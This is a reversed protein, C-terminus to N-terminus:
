KIKFYYRLNYNGRLYDRDCIYELPRNIPDDFIYTTICTEIDYHSFEAEKVILKNSAEDYRLDYTTHDGAASRYFKILVYDDCMLFLTSDDKTPVDFFYFLHNGINVECERYEQKILHEKRTKGALLKNYEDWSFGLEKFKNVYEDDLYFYNSSKKNTNYINDSNEDIQIYYKNVLDWSGFYHFAMIRYYHRYGIFVKNLDNILFKEFIDYVESSNDNNNIANVLGNIIDKLIEEKEYDHIFLKLKNIVSLSFYRAILSSKESNYESYNLCILKIINEYDEGFICCYLLSKIDLDNFRKTNVFDEILDIYIEKGINFDKLLSKYKLKYFGDNDVYFIGDLYQILLRFDLENWTINKRKFLRELDKITIGSPSACILSTAYKSLEYNIKKCSLKILESCLGGITESCEKVLDIQYNIIAKIDGGLENIKEFDSREMLSLRRLMLEVYLSNISDKKKFIEKTVLEDLEKRSNILEKNIINTVDFYDLDMISNIYPYKYSYNNFDSITFLVSVNEPMDEIMFPLNSIDSFDLLNVDNIIFEIKRIGNIKINNNNINHIICSFYNKWYDCSYFEEETPKLYEIYFLECLYKIILESLNYIDSTKKTLGCFIPYVIIGRERRRKSLESILAINVSSISNYVPIYPLKSDLYFSLKELVNHRDHLVGTKKLVYNWHIKEEKQVFSLGNYEKWKDTLLNILDNCIKNQLEDYGDWTNKDINYSVKYDYVHANPIAKIKEKLKNLKNIAYKSKEEYYVKYNDPIDGDINRFYFLIHDFKSKDFFAGYLIELETVSIEYDDLDMIFHNDMTYKMLREGPIWGYRNGIFVIMYPRCLDIEYLCSNLIKKNSSDEDLENTNIGWRLDCLNIEDGYYSAVQNIYPVVKSNLIDRENQMDRFTSSVFITKM